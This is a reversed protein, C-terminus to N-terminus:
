QGPWHMLLAVVSNCTHDSGPLAQETDRDLSADHGSLRAIHVIVRGQTASPPALGPIGRMDRPACQWWGQRFPASVIGRLLIAM